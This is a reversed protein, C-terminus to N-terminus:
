EKFSDRSHVPGAQTSAVSAPLTVRFLSGMGSGSLAEISGRHAEVITRAIALGLGSGGGPSRAPDARYFRDFIHPLIETPIGCGTDEVEIVCGEELPQLRVIVNGEAPTFKLANDILILVLRRLASDDAWVMAPQDPITWDVHINRNEALPAIFKRLGRLVDDAFVTDFRFQWQGADGRALLLLEDLLETMQETEHQISSLTQRYSESSRPHRLALEASTRLVTVPTRLEHAADATFRRIGRVSSEIRVLLENWAEALDQLEDRTQPVSLRASLDGANIARAEQTMAGVPMLARRALWWGGAVAALLVVPLVTMMVRGLTSLTQNFNTLPMSLEVFLEHGRVHITRQRQLIPAASSDKKLLVQGEANSVRISYGAPLLTSYERIEERVAALEDGHAEHEVFLELSALRGDLENRNNEILVQRLVLWTSVGFAIMGVALVALYWLTLQFRVSRNGGIM